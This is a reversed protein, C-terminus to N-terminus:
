GRKGIVDPTGWKDKFRNGGLPVARTCEEIDNQLWDAVAGYFDGEKIKINPKPILEFKLQNTEVDRFKSLRFLGKPPKYFQEPFKQDLDWIYGQISNVKLSSDLTDIGRVLEAYRIGDPNESLLRTALSVIRNRISETPGAM